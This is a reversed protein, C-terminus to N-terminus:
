NCVRCFFRPCISGTIFGSILKRRDRPQSLRRRLPGGEKKKEVMRSLGGPKKEQTPYRPSPIRAHGPHRSSQHRHRPQPSIPPFQPNLERSPRQKIISPLARDPFPNRQPNPTRKLPSIPPSSHSSVVHTTLLPTTESSNANSSPPMDLPFEYTQHLPSTSISHMRVPSHRVLYPFRTSSTTLAAFSESSGM